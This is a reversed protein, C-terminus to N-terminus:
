IVYLTFVQNKFFRETAQTCQTVLKPATRSKFIFKFYIYIYTLFAVTQKIIRDQKGTYM